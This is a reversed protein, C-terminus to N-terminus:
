NISKYFSMYRLPDYDYKKVIAIDGFSFGSKNYLLFAADNQHRALIEYRKYEPHLKPLVNILLYQGVGKKQYEPIIFYQALYFIKDKDLLQYLMIGIPKKQYQILIGKYGEKASLVYNQFEDKATDLLWINKENTNSPGLLMPKEDKTIIFTKNQYVAMFSRPFEKMFWAEDAKTLTQTTIEAFNIITAQSICSSLGVILILFLKLIHKKM